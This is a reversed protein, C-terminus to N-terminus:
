IGEDCACPDQDLAQYSLPAPFGRQMLFRVRRAREHETAAAMGHAGFRRRLAQRATDLEDHLTESLGDRILEADVGRQRLEAIIRLSGYGQQVRHRIFSEVFRSESQLAHTELHTLTAEITAADVGRQRLKQALEARSHERRALLRLALQRADAVPKPRRPPHM